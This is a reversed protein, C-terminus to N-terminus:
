LFFDGGMGGLTHLAWMVWLTDLLLAAASVWWSFLVRAPVFSLAVNSARAPSITIAQAPAVVAHTPQFILLYAASAIFVYRLLLFLRKPGGGLHRPVHDSIVRFTHA